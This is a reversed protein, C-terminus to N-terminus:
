EVTRIGIIRRDSKRIKVSIFTSSFLIEGDGNDFTLLIKVSEVLVGDVVGEYKNSFSKKFKNRFLYDSDGVKISLGDITIRHTSGSRWSFSIFRGDPTFRYQSKPYEIFEEDVALAPDTEWYRERLDPEGYLQILRTPTLTNLRYINNFKCDDTSVVDYKPHYPKTEIDTPITIRSQGNLQYSVYFLVISFLVQKFM